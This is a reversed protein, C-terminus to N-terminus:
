AQVRGVKDSTVSRDFSVFGLPLAKDQFTIWIRYIADGKRKNKWIGM